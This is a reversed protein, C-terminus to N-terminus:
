LAQSMMAENTEEENSDKSKCGFKEKLFPGWFDWNFWIMFLFVVLCGFLIIFAAGIQQPSPLPIIM